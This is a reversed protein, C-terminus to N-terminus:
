YGIYNWHAKDAECFQMMEVDNFTKVCLFWWYLHNHDFVTPLKEFYKFPLSDGFM